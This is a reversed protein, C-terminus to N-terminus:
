WEQSDWIITFPGDNVLEVKMDAGFEGSQVSGYLAIVKEKFYEYLENALDPSAAKVFSPRNGKKCDAYLTFQSVVLIEGSIDQVSLNTKGEEDAFIRLKLLKDVYKDVMDRTDGEGVGLFVLLGKNIQGSINGDIVVKAENVRQIILKMIINVMM